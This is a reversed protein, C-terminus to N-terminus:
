FITSLISGGNYKLNDLRHNGDFENLEYYEEIDISKNFASNFSQIAHKYSTTMVDSINDFISVNVVSEDHLVFHITNEYGSIGLNM